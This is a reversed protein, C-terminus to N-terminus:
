YYLISLHNLPIFPRTTYIPSIRLKTMTPRRVACRVGGGFKSCRILEWHLLVGLFLPRTTSAINGISTSAKGGKLNPFTNKCGNNKQRIELLIGNHRFREWLRFPISKEEFPYRSMNQNRARFLVARNLRNVSNVKGVTVTSANFTQERSPSWEVTTGLSNKFKFM